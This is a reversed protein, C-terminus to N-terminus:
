PCNARLSSQFEVYRANVHSSNTNGNLLSYNTAAWGHACDDKKRVTFYDGFRSDSRNHTGNATLSLIAFFNGATGPDDVSVAGRAATGGGGSRGGFGISLGFDGTTSSSIAPFGLCFTNNFIHNSPLLSLGPETFVASHVHGQTHSADRGVNWVFWMRSGPIVAGRLRFGAISFATSREIWDFNGTGGRCDPNVFNSGHPVGRDFLELANNNERLRIIRFLNSTRNVGFYQTTTAGEVPTLIRQGDTGTYNFTTFSTSLCNAMQSVNFRRIQAGIWTTGNTLRNMTLYLFNNSVALHPYDPLVNNATGGPDILYTCDTGGAITSRKVFIRVVGNTQSANTYLVTHFTTDQVPHHVADLDCCAISAEAPGAPIALATWTAGRDASRSFYTNGGYFVEVSDQAASPEALTSSVVQARTNRFNRRVLNADSEAELAIPKANSRGRANSPSKPATADRIADRRAIMAEIEEGTLERAPAALEAPNEPAITGTSAALLTGVANQALVTSPAAIAVLATALLLSARSRPLSTSINRM